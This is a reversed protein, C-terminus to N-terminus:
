KASPRIELNRSGSDVFTAARRVASWGQRRGRAGFRIANASSDFNICSIICDSRSDRILIKGHEIWDECHM